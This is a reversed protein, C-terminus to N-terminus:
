AGGPRDTRGRAARDLSRRVVRAVERGTFPKQIFEESADIESPMDGSRHSYGSMFIVLVSPQKERVAAAVESGNGGPMKVDTLLLDIPEKSQSRQVEAADKNDAQLVNYGRGELARVVLRRVADDDEVVLITEDCDAVDAQEPTPTSRLADSQIRPLYVGIVTGRGPESEITLHGGSQTVVGHATSLGLGTGLGVGKTTFFPEFIHSLTEPDMGHGTDRILFAAYPGSTVDERERALQADVHVHATEITLTGGSPMADRSNLALNLIVQEIQQPDIRATGADQDLSTVVEIHDGILRKMMRTVSAVVDNLAIVEQKLHQRRGFALLQRTLQAASEAASGIETVDEHSEPSLDTMKLSDTAGLIVTLLNNFDHAVGGALRGISELRQTQRLSRELKHWERMDRGAIVIAETKGERNRTVSGNVTVPIKEGNPRLISTERGRVTEIKSLEEIPMGLLPFSPGPEESALRALESGVLSMRNAGVLECTADNITRITGDLNTVIIFDVMSTVIGESYDKEALILQQRHEIEEAMENFAVGLRGFEDGSTIAVRHETDGAAIAAAAASLNRLPRAILRQAVYWGMAVASFLNAFLVLLTMQRLRAVAEDTRLKHEDLEQWEADIGRRAVGFAAARSDRLLQWRARRQEPTMATPDTALIERSIDLLEGSSRRIEALRTSMEDVMPAREPLPARDIVSQYRSLAGQLRAASRPISQQVEDDSAILWGETDHVLSNIEDAVERLATAAALNDEVVEKFAMEVEGTAQFVVASLLLLFAAVLVFSAIIKTRIRMSRETDCSLFDSSVEM